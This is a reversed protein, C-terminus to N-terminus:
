PGALLPIGLDHRASLRRHADPVFRVRLRRTLNLAANRVAALLHGTKRAHRRDEGYTVDRIHHVRNEIAWHGRLGAAIAAPSARDPPLSTLWPRTEVKEWRAAAARRRSRRILGTQRVGPWRHAHALYRGLEESPVAWLERREVRGHAKEVAVV